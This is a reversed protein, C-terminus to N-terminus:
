FGARVGFVFSQPLITNTNMGGVPSSAPGNASSITDWNTVDDPNLGMKVVEGGFLFPNLIQFNLDLNKLYMKSTWAQPFSYSLSINRVSVFSGDDFQMAATYNSVGSGFNPMPWRGGPNDWSWVDNEVRGNPFVGGYSNPYGGFFTQGIRAYVFASLTWNKYRFTNTIGGTWKPRNTGRVVFDDATIKYDDNQDVVKVTGPYFNFGNAKFKALEELDETTNQWIGDHDYQYYVQTPQGIFLRNALMDEKGNILEVIEERNASWNVDINWSFSETELAVASLTIEIGKNRTKGINELKEVYGSPAALTRGFILDSTNAEYLEVSGTLKSQLISFDLGINWESTREWRLEPNRVL